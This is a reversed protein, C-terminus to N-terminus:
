LHEGKECGKRLEEDTVYQYTEALQKLEEQRGFSARSVHVILASLTISRTVGTTCMFVQNFSSSLARKLARGELRKLDHHITTLATRARENKKLRELFELVCSSKEWDTKKKIM